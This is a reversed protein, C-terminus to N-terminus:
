KETDSVLPSVSIRPDRTKCPDSVGFSDISKLSSDVELIKTLLASACLRTISVGVCLVNTRNFVALSTGATSTTPASAERSSVEAVLNFPPLKSASRLPIVRAFGPLTSVCAWPSLLSSLTRISPITPISSNFPSTYETFRTSAELKSNFFVSVRLKEWWSCLPTNVWRIGLSSPDMSDSLRVSSKVVMLSRAESAYTRPSRRATESVPVTRSPFTKAKREMLPSPRVKISTPPTPFLEVWDLLPLTYRMLSKFLFMEFTSTAPLGPTDSTLM